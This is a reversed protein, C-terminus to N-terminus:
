DDDGSGSGSSDGGGSGSNDGDEGDDGSGSGGSDSDDDGGDDGSGPGSSDGDDDDDADGSGPGSNSGSSGSGSSGSGSSGSGSSGSSTSGPGSNDTEDDTGSGPGSSDSGSSGGGSGSGSDVSGPGSNISGPGSSRTGVSEATLEADDVPREGTTGAARRGRVRKSVARAVRGEDPAPATAEAPPPGASAERTTPSRDLQSGTGVALAGVAVVATGTKLLVGAGGAAGAEAVMETVRSGMQGSQGGMSAAWTALPMPTVATAAARLAVRARHVLQRVAGESIQMDRAIDARSHGDVATRLLAERQNDPLAAVGGLTERVVWRREVEDEPAPTLELADSLECYDYGARKAADLAANRSIRYLWARLDEVESGNQLASWANLFTQQVADEARPEPLFRRCHRLLPRRYREVIAEFAREQGQRALALLRVDSQTRLITSSVIPTM